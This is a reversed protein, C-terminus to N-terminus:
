MYVGRSRAMKANRRVIKKLCPYHYRYSMERNELNSVICGQRLLHYQHLRNNGWCQSDCVRGADLEQITGWTGRPATEPHSGLEGATANHPGGHYRDSAGEEREVVNHEVEDGNEKEDKAPMDFGRQIGNEWFKQCIHMLLQKVVKLHPHRQGVIRRRPLFSLAYLTSQCSLTVNLSGNQGKLSLFPLFKLVNESHSGKPGTRFGSARVWAGSVCCLYLVEHADDGHVLKIEFM